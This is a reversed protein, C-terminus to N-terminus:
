PKRSVTVFWPQRHRPEGPPRYYDELPDFGAAALAAQWSEERHYHGYRGDSSWGAEDHGRPISAVLVGGKILTHHLEGLVRPLHEAPVHFLSANAFIGDFANAPLDLALFDQQWVDCGSAERAMACFAASGDLGTVQHGLDRFTILDRGPGCGFDLIRLPRDDPLHRLLAAVNQSVDHDWTGDRFRDAFREYHALTRRAVDRADATDPSSDASPRSPYRPPAIDAM